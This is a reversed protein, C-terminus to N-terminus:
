HDRYSTDSDAEISLSAKNLLEQSMEALKHLASTAAEVELQAAEIQLKEIALDGISKEGIREQALAYLKKLDNADEIVEEKIRKLEKERADLKGLIMKLEEDKINLARQAALVKMEKM